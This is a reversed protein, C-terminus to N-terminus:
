KIRETRLLRGSKWAKLPDCAARPVSSGGHGDGSSLPRVCGCKLFPDWKGALDDARRQAERPFVHEFDVRIRRRDGEGFREREFGSARAAVCVDGQHGVIQPERRHPLQRRLPQTLWRGDFVRNVLRHGRVHVEAPGPVRSPHPVNRRLLEIRIRHPVEPLVLRQALTADAVDVEGDTPHRGLPRLGVPEVVLFPVGAVFGIRGATSSPIMSACSTRRPKTFVARGAPLSSPAICGSDASPSTRADSGIKKAPRVILRGQSETLAPFITSQPASSCSSRRSRPSLCDLASRARRPQNVSPKFRAASGATDKWSVIPRTLREMSLSRAKALVAKTVPPSSSAMTRIVRLTASPPLPTPQSTRAVRSESDCVFMLEKRTHESRGIFGDPLSKRANILWGARTHM